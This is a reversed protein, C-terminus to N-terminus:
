GGMTILLTVDKVIDQAPSGPYLDDQQLHITGGYRIKHSGPPLQLMVFYGEGVSTGNGGVNAFVWPTPAHFHFQQTEAHYSSINPVQVADDITCFLDGIRSFFKEAIAQQDAPTTAFFPSPDLSSAEVDLMTLFIAKGAPIITASQNCIEVADPASWFWVNGSQDASIPRANCDNFPHPYNQPSTVPLALAWQWFATAWQAYTQGAFTGNPPVIQVTKVAAAAVADRAVATTGGSDDGGCGALGTALATVIASAQLANRILPIVYKM